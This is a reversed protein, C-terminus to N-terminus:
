KVRGIGPPYKGSDILLKRELVRESNNFDLISATVEGILTIPTILAGEIQFHMNWADNRPHFFRMYKGSSSISGIDSGKRRNCFFCAYALNDTETKGGHKRSVIHDVECGFFTDDEHILCYECLHGARSAVVQRVQERIYSSM